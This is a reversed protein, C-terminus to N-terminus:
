LTEPAARCDAPMALGPRELMAKEGEIWFATHGDTYRAADGEQEGALAFVGAGTRLRVHGALYDVSFREGDGCEYRVARASDGTYARSAVFSAAALLVVLAAIRAGSPLAHTPLDTM